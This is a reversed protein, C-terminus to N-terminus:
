AAQASVSFSFKTVDVLFLPSPPPPSDSNETKLAVASIPLLEAVQKTCSHIPIALQLAPWPAFFPFLPIMDYVSTKSLARAAHYPGWSTLSRKAPGLSESFSKVKAYLILHCLYGTGLPIRTASKPLIRRYKEPALYSSQVGEYVWLVCSYQGETNM